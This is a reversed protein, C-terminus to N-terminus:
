GYQIVRKWLTKGCRYVKYKNQYIFYEPEIQGIEIYNELWSGDDFDNNTIYTDTTPQQKYKDEIINSITDLIKQGDKKYDTDFINLLHIGKSKAM